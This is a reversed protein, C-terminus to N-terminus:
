ECPEFMPRHEAPPSMAIIQDGRWDITYNKFCIREVTRMERLPFTIVSSSSSYSGAILLYSGIFTPPSEVSNVKLEVDKKDVWSPIRVLLNRGSRNEIELRGDKSLHSIVRVDEAEYSFLLNIRVGVDESSIIAGLAECMGDVAGSTIDYTTLAADPNLLYDNPTPFSFGGRLRSARRSCSDDSADPEDPLDDVDIVQSPLLHGRLIREADEFYKPWGSNGLLLAARLLDGTNNSEGRHNFKDLSEMSWGFSSNFRPCGVDYIAKVRRLLDADNTVIAFDLMGAVMANLSHGHTGAEERLSGDPTFCHKLVYTTMLGALELAAADGTVRYNRVLADVARGEQSPQYSYDSVYSPLCDLQIAGESDLAKKVARIMRRSWKEAREDGRRCLATLAHTSERINHLHVSRQGTKDDVIGPLDDTEDFLAIQLDALDRWIAEDVREGTADEALSIAHIARAVDHCWDWAGAHHFPQLQSDKVRICWYPMHKKTADLGGVLSNLGLKIHYLIDIPANPQM